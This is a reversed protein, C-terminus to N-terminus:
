KQCLTLWGLRSNDLSVTVVIRDCECVCRKSCKSQVRSHGCFSCACGSVALEISKSVHSFPSNNVRRKKNCPLMNSKLMQFGFCHAFHRDFYFSRKCSMCNQYNVSMEPKEFKTNWWILYLKLYM